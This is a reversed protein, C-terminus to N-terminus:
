RKVGASERAGIPATLSGQLFGQPRRVVLASRIEGLFTVLNKVFDDENELAVELRQERDYLQAAM